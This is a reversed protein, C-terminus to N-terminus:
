VLSIFAALFRKLGCFSVAKLRQRAFATKDLRWATRLGMRIPVVEAIRTDGARM